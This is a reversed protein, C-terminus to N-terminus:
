PVCSAIPPQSAEGGADRLRRGAKSARHGIHWPRTFSVQETAARAKKKEPILKYNYRCDTLRSRAFPPFRAM